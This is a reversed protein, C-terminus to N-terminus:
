FDVLPHISDDNPDVVVLVLLKVLINVDDAVPPPALIIEFVLVFVLAVVNLGFTTAVFGSLAAVLM